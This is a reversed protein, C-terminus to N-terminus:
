GVPGRVPELFQELSTGRVEREITAVIDSDLGSKWADDPGPRKFVSRKNPNHRAQSQAIFDVSERPLELRLFAFLASAARVPDEIFDGYKLVRARDPFRSEIELAQRTVAKWDDFGWFEGVDGKRCAGTRWEDAVVADEPFETPNSLWSYISAAPHRVIYILRVHETKSLLSPLLHHFRNSKILLADEEACQSFEPVLGDRRLHDQDMYPSPTRVVEEFFAAWEAAASEPNLANKFEYSFLPCFKVRVRPAAALMQSVWTTGSRPM